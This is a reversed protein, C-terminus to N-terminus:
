RYFDDIFVTKVWTCINGIFFFYYGKIQGAHKKMIPYGIQKRFYQLFVVKLGRRSHPTKPLM